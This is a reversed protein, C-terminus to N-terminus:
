PAKQKSRKALFCVLVVLSLVMSGVIIRRARPSARVPQLAAKRLGGSKQLKFARANTAIEPAIINGNSSFYTLFAPSHNSESTRIRRDVIISQEPVRVAQFRAYNTFFSVKAESTALVRLDSADLADAKRAFQILRVSTPYEFGNKDLFGEAQMQAQVFGRDYPPSLQITKLEGTIGDLVLLKGDNYFTMTEPFHPLIARRVWDAQVKAEAMLPNADWVPRLLGKSGWEDLVCGSAFMLWLVSSLTGDFAPTPDGSVSAVSTNKRTAKSSLQQEELKGNRIRFAKGAPSNSGPFYLQHLDTGDFSAEQYGRGDLNTTTITWSCGDV